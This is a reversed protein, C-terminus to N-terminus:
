KLNLDTKINKIADDRNIRRSYINDLTANYTAVQESTAENAFWWDLVCRSQLIMNEVENGKLKGQKIWQEYIIVALSIDYFFVSARSDGTPHLNKIHPNRVMSSCNPSVKFSVMENHGAKYLGLPWYEVNIDDGKYSFLKKQQEKTMALVEDVYPQHSELYKRKLEAQKLLTQEEIASYVRNPDRKYETM